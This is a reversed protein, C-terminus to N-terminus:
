SCKKGNTDFISPGDRRRDQQFTDLTDDSYFKRADKESKTIPMIIPDSACRSDNENHGSTVSITEGGSLENAVGDARTASILPNSNPHSLQSAHSPVLTPLSKQEHTPRRLFVWDNDQTDRGLSRDILPKRLVSSLDLHKHLDRGRVNPASVQHHPHDSPLHAVSTVVAPPPYQSQSSSPLYRPLTYTNKTRFKFAFIMCSFIFVLVALSFIVLLSYMGIELPTLNHYYLGSDYDPDFVRISDDSETKALIMKLIRERHYNFDKNSSSVSNGTKPAIKSLGSSSSSYTYGPSFLSPRSNRSRNFKSKMRSFADNQQFNILSSEEDDSNFDVNITLYSMALQQTRKRQCMAPVELSVHILQDKGENIAILRPYSGSSASLSSPAIAIARNEHFIDISLHYDRASVSDLPIMTGDSLYLKIDFLGEQYMSSFRDTTTVRAAWINDSFDSYPFMQLSIGTILDIGLHTITERDTAVKVETSGLTRGTIPSMVQVQTKGPSTGELILDSSRFSLIRPDLIRINNSVLYTIDFYNGRSSLYTERGSEHDNTFFKTLVKVKTQQYRLRCNNPELNHHNNDENGSSTIASGSSDGVIRSNYSRKSSNNAVKRRKEPSSELPGFKSAKSHFLVNWLSADSTNNYSRHASSSESRNAAPIVQRQRRSEELVGKRKVGDVASPFTVSGTSRKSSYVSDVNNFDSSHVHGNNDDASTRDHENTGRRKEENSRNSKGKERVEKRTDDGFSSFPSSRKRKKNKMVTKIIEESPDRARPIRWGKIQSLKSDKVKIELPIKPTWVVFSSYGTFSGYKIVISSNVSPRIESGDLYISTCSQSVKLSSEDLSHCTSQLTVDGSRGSKSVVFVRLPQSVQKGTLIATNLMQNSKSVGIVSSVEDKVVELKSTLKLSERDLFDKRVAITDKSTFLTQEKRLGKSVQSSTSLSNSSTDTIYMVQWVMRGNDLVDVRDDVELLFSFIEQAAFGSSSLKSHQQKSGQGRYSNRRGSSGDNMQLDQDRLFCTVTAVNGKSPSEFVIQWSSLPVVQAGLVRVGSKIKVRISLATVHHQNPSPKLVVPIYMRANPHTPEQPILIKIMNDNTVEEYMGKSLSLKVEQLQNVSGVPFPISLSEISRILHDPMSPIMGLSSQSCASDKVLIYDVSAAVPKFRKNNTYNLTVSPWWSSPLTVSAICSGERNFSPSCTGFVKEEDKSVIVVACLLNNTASNIVNSETQENDFDISEDVLFHSDPFPSSSSKPYTPPLHQHHQHSHGAYFLVQVVPNNRTIETRVLHGSVDFGQGPLTVIMPKLSSARSQNNLAEKLDSDLDSYDENHYLKVPKNVGEANGSTEFDNTQKLAEKQPYITERASIPGFSARVSM